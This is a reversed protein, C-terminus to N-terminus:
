NKSGSLEAFPLKNLVWNYILEADAKASDALAVRYAM